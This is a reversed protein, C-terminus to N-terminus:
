SVMVSIDDHYWRQFGRCDRCTDRHTSRDSDPNRANIPRCQDQFTFLDSHGQVKNNTIPLRIVVGPPVGACLVEGAIVPICPHRNKRIHVPPLFSYTIKSMLILWNPHSKWIKKSLKKRDPRFFYLFITQKPLFISMWSSLSLHQPSAQSLCQQSLTVTELTASYGAQLDEIKIDQLKM